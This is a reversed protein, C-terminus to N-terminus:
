KILTILMKFVINLMLNVCSYQKKEWKTPVHLKEIYRKKNEKSNDFTYQTIKILEKIVIWYYSTKTFTYQHHNDITTNSNM